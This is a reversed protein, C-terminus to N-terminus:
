AQARTMSGQFVTGDAETYKGHWVGADYSGQWPGQHVDNNNLPAGLRFPYENSLPPGEPPDQDAPRTWTGTFVTGDDATYTGTFVGGSWSGQWAM